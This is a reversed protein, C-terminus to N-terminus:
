QRIFEYEFGDFTNIMRNVTGSAADTKFRLRGIFGPMFFETESYPRIELRPQDDYDIWVKGEADVSVVGTWIDSDASGDAAEKVRQAAYTGEYSKLVANDVMIVPPPGQVAKFRSEAGSNTMMIHTVAGSDDSIIKVTSGPSLKAYFEDEASALLVFDRRQGPQLMFQGKDDLHLSMLMNGDSYYGEYKELTSRSVIIPELAVAPTYPALNTESLREREKSIMLDLSATIAVFRVDNRLADFAPETALRIPDLFGKQIAQELADLAAADDARMAKAIAIGYYTDPHEFGQENLVSLAALIEDRLEEGHRPEDASEDGHSMWFEAM